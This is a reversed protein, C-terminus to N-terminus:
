RDDATRELDKTLYLQAHGAPYGDIRGHEVYGRRRYFEPAQFTHTSLVMRRGGRDRTTQEAADMLRTGLGQGRHGEEVWLADVYGCGGWTWGSVGGALQGDPATARITLLRGDTIGTAESNFAYIEDDLRDALARDGEGVEIAIEIPAQGDTDAM